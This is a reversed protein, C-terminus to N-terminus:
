AKRSFRSLGVGLLGLAFLGTPEPVSTSPEDSNFLHLHSEGTGSLSGAILTGNIHGNNFQIDANPALISGMWGVESVSLNSAQAFNFIVNQMGHWTIKLCPSFSGINIGPNLGSTAM